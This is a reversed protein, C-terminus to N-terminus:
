LKNLEESTNQKFTRTPHGSFESPLLCRLSSFLFYAINSFSARSFEFVFCGLSLFSADSFILEFVFNGVRYFSSVLVSLM